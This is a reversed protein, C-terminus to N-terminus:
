KPKKGNLVSTIPNISPEILLPFQLAALGIYLIPLQYSSKGAFAQQTNTIGWFLMFAMTSAIMLRVLKLNRRINLFFLQSTGLLLFVTAIAERPIGYPTFTPKSLYLNAALALEMVALITIAVFLNRHTRFINSKATISRLAKGERKAMKPSNSM